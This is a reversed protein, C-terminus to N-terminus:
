GIPDPNLGAAERAAAMDELRRKVVQKTVPKDNLLYHRNNSQGEPAAITRILGDGENMWKPSRSAVDQNITRNHKRNVVMGKKAKAKPAGGKAKPTTESEGNKRAM